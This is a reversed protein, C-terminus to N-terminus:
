ARRRPRVVDIGDDAELEAGVVVDRLREVGPREDGPDLGDEAPGVPGDAEAARDLDAAEADLRAPALDEDALATDLQPGALEVEQGRQGPIGADDETALREELVDPAGVEGTLGPRDIDM